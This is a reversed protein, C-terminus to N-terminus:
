ECVFFSNLQVAAMNSYARGVMVLDSKVGLREGERGEWVVEIEREFGGAGGCVCVCM